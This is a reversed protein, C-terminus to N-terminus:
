EHSDLWGSMLTIGERFFKSRPKNLFGHMAKPVVAYDVEVGVARLDDAFLEGSARLSDRDADIMLTPPLGTLRTGGPFAEAALARDGLYNVMMLDYVEGTFALKGALGTLSARVGDSLPPLNAHFAGYALLLGRVEISGEDLLEVSARVALNAGASAGGIFLSGGHRRAFDRGATVVDDSAAPYRHDSPRMVAPRRGTLELFPLEPVLRYDVARVPRGTGAIAKAADHSEKQDLGGSMFGGGHLWLVPQADPRPIEPLYDRVPIDGRPGSVATDFTGVHTRRTGGRSFATM